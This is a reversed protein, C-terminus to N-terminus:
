PLLLFVNLYHFMHLFAPPGGWVAGASFSASVLLKFYNTLILSPNKECGGEKMHINGYSFGVGVQYPGKRNRRNLLLTRRTSKALSTNPGQTSPVKEERAHRENVM